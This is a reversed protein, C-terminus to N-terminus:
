FDGCYNRRDTAVCNTLRPRIRVRAWERELVENSAAERLGDLPESALCIPAGALNQDFTASDRPLSLSPLSPM